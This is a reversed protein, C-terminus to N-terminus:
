RYLEMPGGLHLISMHLRLGAGEAVRRSALNGPRILAVVPPGDGEGGAIAARAAELAYGQGWASPRFRYYLNRVVEGDLETQRLGAVGIVRPADLLRVMRYGVGHERWDALWGALMQRTTALDPSPGAPNFRNTEPDAHIEHVDALDTISPRDLSM